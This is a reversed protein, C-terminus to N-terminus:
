VGVGKLIEAGNRNALDFRRPSTMESFWDGKGDLITPMKKGSLWSMIIGQDGMGIAVAVRDSVKGVIPMWDRPKSWVEGWQYEIQFGVGPFYYGLKSEEEGLAYLELILRDGRSYVIDYKEDMTWIIKETPFVDEVRQVPRSALIVSSEVDYFNEFNM